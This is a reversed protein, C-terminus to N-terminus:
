EMMLIIWDYDRIPEIKQTISILTLTPYNRSINAIIKEETTIDLRATFDDLFLIKPNLALARALMIRQKQGGSLNTGRESVITDLGEPLSHILDSLEASEIALRIDRDDGTNSFAINERLTLHFLSSEQFVIGMQQCLSTRDYDSLPVGDYLVRGTTPELLGTM